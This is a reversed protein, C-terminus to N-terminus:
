YLSEVKEADQLFFLVMTLAASDGCWWRRAAWVKM